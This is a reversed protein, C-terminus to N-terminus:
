LPQVHIATYPKGCVVYLTPVICWFAAAFVEGVILGIFFPKASRYLRSGGYRVLLVKFLWGLFVGVWAENGYFTFVMLIGIPHLPWRPM